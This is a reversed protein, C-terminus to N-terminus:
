DWDYPIINVLEFGCYEYRWWNGNEYKIEYWFNDCLQVIYPLQNTKIESINLFSFSIIILLTFFFTKM